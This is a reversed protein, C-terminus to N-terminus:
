PSRFRGAPQSDQLIATPSIPGGDSLVVNPRRTRPCSSIMLSYNYESM